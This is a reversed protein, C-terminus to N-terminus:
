RSDEENEEDAEAEAEEAQLFYQFYDYERQMLDWFSPYRDAGPVWNAYYFAEWEGDENVVRPNLLYTASGAIETASIVLADPMYLEYDDPTFVRPRDRWPLHPDLMIDIQEQHNVRFWEVESTDFIRHVLESPQRFGNSVQLFQRYSPPLRVGGLRTELAEIEAEAAGPYGFWRATIVETPIDQQPQMYEFFEEMDLHDFLERNWRELWTKWDYTPM